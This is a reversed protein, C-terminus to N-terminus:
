RPKTSEVGDFGLDSGLGVTAVRQAGRHGGDAAFGVGFEVGRGRGTLAGGGGGCQKRILHLVRALSIGFPHCTLVSM